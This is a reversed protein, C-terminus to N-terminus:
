KEQIEKLGGRPTIAWTKLAPGLYGDDENLMALVGVKDTRVERLDIFVEAWQTKGWTATAYNKAESRTGFCRSLCPNGFEYGPKNIDVEYILM